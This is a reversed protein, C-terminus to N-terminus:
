QQGVTSTPAGNTNNGLIRNNGFSVIAAGGLGTGNGVVHTNSMQITSNGNALVGFSNNSSSVCGELTLSVTGTGAAAHFGNTNSNTASSRNVVVITGSETRLGFRNRDLYTDDIAANVVAPEVPKIFIGGGNTPDNNRRIESNRVLLRSSTSPQFDIGKQAFNFIVVNEVHLAAGALFRIGNLGTSNGNISLNRLTVTDGSGANVVVGNTGAALISALTSGGDITISKTITVAGYGGPDLANIEGGAATKSIAGAFTKCPATRSCPNADDGVSSVWTRTAQAQALGSLGGLVLWAVVVSVRIPRRMNSERNLACLIAYPRGSIRGVLSADQRARGINAQAGILRVKRSGREALQERDNVAM